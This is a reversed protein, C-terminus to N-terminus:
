DKSLHEFTHRTPKFCIGNCNILPKYVADDMPPPANGYQRSAGCDLCRFIAKFFMPYQYAAAATVM